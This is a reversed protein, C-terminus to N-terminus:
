ARHWHIDGGTRRLGASRPFYYHGHKPAHFTITLDAPVAVPDFSGTDYNMGTIGNMSILKCPSLDTSRRRHHVERLDGEILRSVGTALLADV